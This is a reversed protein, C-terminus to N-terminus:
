SLPHRISLQCSPCHDVRGATQGCHDCRQFAHGAIAAGCQCRFFAVSPSEHGLPCRLTPAMYRPLKRAVRVTRAIWAISRYLYYLAFWPLAVLLAIGGLKNDTSSM